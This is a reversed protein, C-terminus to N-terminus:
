KSSEYDKQSEGRLWEMLVSNVKNTKSKELWTNYEGYGSPFSTSTQQTKAIYEPYSYKRMLISLDADMKNYRTEYQISFSIGENAYSMVGRRQGRFIKVACLPSEVGYNRLLNLIIEMAFVGQDIPVLFQREIFSRGFLKKWGVLGAFPFLVHNPIQPFSPEQRFYIYASLFRAGYKRWLSFGLIVFANYTLFPPLQNTNKPPESSWNAIFIKGRIGNKIPSFWAGIDDVAESNSILGDILAQASTCKIARLVMSNGPRRVVKIRATLIVGTVGFGGLTWRFESDDQTIWCVKGSLPDLLSFGVVHDGFSGLKHGNKGHVDAAICGGVTAQDAGPMVQLCYGKESLIKDLYKISINADAHVTSSAEDINISLGSKRKPCIATDGSLAVSIPGFSQMAGAAIYSNSYNSGLQFESSIKEGEGSIIADTTKGTALSVGGYSKGSINEQSTMIVGKCSASKSFRPM